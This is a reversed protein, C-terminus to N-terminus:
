DNIANLTDAIFDRAMTDDGAMSLAAALLATLSPAAATASTTNTATTASSVTTADSSPIVVPPVEAAHAAAGKGKSAVWRARTKCDTHTHTHWKIRDRHNPCDCFYWTENNWTKSDGVKHPAADAEASTKFHKIFPPLKSTARKAAPTDGDPSAAATAIPKRKNALMAVIDEQLTTSSGPFKGDHKGAIQNYKLVAANMFAHCDPILGNDNDELKQRVWQAWAEPQQIREYVALTHQIRESSDLIRNRTTALFFLNLLQSNITAINFAHDAPQFELIQKFSTISLQGSAVITFRTLKFFLAVGDESLPANSVQLLLTTRLDGEISQKICRYMATANQVARPDATRATFAATIAAETLQHYDTLLNLNNGLADTFTLIGQPAAANWNSEGARVQLALVFAPFKQVNGDWMDELKACAKDYAAQGIRTTLNFPATQFVPDLLAAASAAASANTAATAAATNAANFQAIAQALATLALGQDILAQAIDPNAAM